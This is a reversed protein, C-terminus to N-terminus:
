PSPFVERARAPQSLIAALQEAILADAAAKKAAADAEAEALQSTKITVLDTLM